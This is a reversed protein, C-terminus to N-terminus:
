GYCGGKKKTNTLDLVVKNKRTELNRLANELVSVRHELQSINSLHRELKLNLQHLELRLHRVEAVLGRMFFFAISGIALLSLETLIKLLEVDVM